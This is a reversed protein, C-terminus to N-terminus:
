FKKLSDGILVRFPLIVEGLVEINLRSCAVILRALLWGYFEGLKAEAGSEEEGSLLL